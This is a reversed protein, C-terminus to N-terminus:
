YWRYRQDLEVRVALPVDFFHAEFDEPLRGFTNLDIASSAREALVELPLLCAAGLLWVALARGPAAFQFM